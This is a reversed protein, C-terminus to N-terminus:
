QTRWSLIRSRLTFIMRMPYGNVAIVRLGYLDSLTLNEPGDDSRVVIAMKQRVFPKSHWAYDAVIKKNKATTFCGAGNGYKTQVMCPAYPMLRYEVDIRAELFIAAVLDFALGVPKGNESRSYPGAANEVNIVIPAPSQAYASLWSAFALVAMAVRLVFVRRHNRNALIQEWAVKVIITPRM